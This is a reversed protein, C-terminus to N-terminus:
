ALARVAALAADVDDESSYLGPGLRVYRTAYPTVTAVVRQRALREVAESASLREVEFCVIAASLSDSRPTRLTVHGMDALGDKLRRALARLRAEIRAKGVARHFDFAKSLAWRHEFSHYGGPTMTLASTVGPARGQLWGAYSAGDDFSPITATTEAWASARAWVIGTGRPGHLWKHCGSVLFSCGLTGATKNEVGLGHVADVCLLVREPLADAIARIPLKVGTSSHVWTLAVVRTRASRARRISSVIEDVSAREAREYLRIRRVRAGTRKARLRLAEHTAYFDHETTLIEQGPRLRLGGYLLGLGMTTSDTLALEDPQAGLYRAAAERVAAELSGQRAHLYGSPDRDLARRHAEIAERVPRPHPALVFGALHHLDRPIAFQARVSRWDAPDLEAQAPHADEASSGSLTAAGAALGARALLEARTLPV